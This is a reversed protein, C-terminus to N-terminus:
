KSMSWHKFGHFVKPQQTLDPGCEYSIKHNVPFLFHKRISTGFVSYHRQNGNSNDICKNYGQCSYDRGLNCRYLALPQQYFISDVVPLVMKVELPFTAAAIIDADIPITRIPTNVYVLFDRFSVNSIQSGMAATPPIQSYPYRTQITDQPIRYLTSPLLCFTLFILIQSATNKTDKAIEVINISALKVHGRINQNKKFLGDM